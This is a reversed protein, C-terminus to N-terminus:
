ETILQFDTFVDPILKGAFEALPRTRFCLRAPVLSLTLWDDVVGFSLGFGSPRKKDAKVKWWIEYKVENPNNYDPRWVKGNEDTNIAEVFVALWYATILWKHFSKPIGTISIKEKIDLKRAKFAAAVSMIDPVEDPNINHKKCFKILEKSKEM